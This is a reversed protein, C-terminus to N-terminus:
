RACASTPYAVIPEKGEAFDVDGRSSREARLAIAKNM